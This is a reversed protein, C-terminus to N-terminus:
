ECLTKLTTLAKPRMQNFMEVREDPMTTMEIDVTTTQKDIATFRYNEYSNAPEYNTTILEKTQEDEMIQWLHHISIYEHIRSEAIQAIMGQGSPDVFKIQTWQEWSGIYTSWESFVATRQEYTPHNLMIDRVKSVPASITISFTLTQMTIYYSLYFNNDVIFFDLGIM